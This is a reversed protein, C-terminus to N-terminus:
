RVRRATAGKTRTAPRSGSPVWTPLNMFFDNTLTGPQSTLVGHKSGGFNIGLVRLGGILATLEPATLTLQQAKDVLLHEAPISPKGKMYNRFGDAIPELYGFSEVDTQEQAADNRGSTFPVKV